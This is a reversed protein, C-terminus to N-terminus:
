STLDSDMSASEEPIPPTVRISTIQHKKRDLVEFRFDHFQFVQGMAPIRRSEHLLLGAITSANEDPLDWEFERKLDRLTVSGEVVFTGNTEQKVGSVILDHEDEIDGVIEEIIDELTVIGMLSGYEDVVLAFHEHRKRFAELQDALSTQEPVFWPESALALVDLEEIGSESRGIVARLLAKAHIIGIVNDPDTRYLPIRTHPSKLIQKVLELTPIDADLTVVNSRHVMIEEVWVDHLDMVSRLMARETRAQNEEGAHLEIAGRLEEDSQKSGVDGGIDIGFPRLVQRVIIHILHTIPALAIVVVNVVPAITLAMSNANHLAYTKPLIEAFILVLLTMAITAYVVGAEGFLTILLSTALASALINVLNNGLLIAGILREKRDLLKNVVIARNDDGTQELQHMVPRSAATLSTESGSFFASLLLLFLIICITIVM